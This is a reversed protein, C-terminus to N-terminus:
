PKAPKPQNDPLNRRMKDFLADRYVRFADVQEVLWATRAEPGPMQNLKRRVEARQDANMALWYQSLLNRYFPPLLESLEGVERRLEPTMRTIEALRLRMAEREAPSMKEILELTQRLKRLQDASLQLLEDLQRLEAIMDAASPLNAPPAPPPAGLLEPPLPPPNPLSSPQRVQAYALPLGCLVWCAAAVFPLKM